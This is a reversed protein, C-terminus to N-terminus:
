AFHWERDLPPKEMFLILSMKSGQSYVAYPKGLFRAVSNEWKSHAPDLKKNNIYPNISSFISFHLYSLKRLLAFVQLQSAMRPRINGPTKLVKKEIPMCSMRDGNTDLNSIMKKGKWKRRMHFAEKRLTIKRAFIENKTSKIRSSEYVSTTCAIKTLLFSNEGHPLLIGRLM